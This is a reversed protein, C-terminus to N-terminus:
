EIQYEDYVGYSVFYFLYAIFSPVKEYGMM